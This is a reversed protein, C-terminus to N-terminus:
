WTVEEPYDINITLDLVSCNYEKSAKILDSKLRKYEEGNEFLRKAMISINDRRKEPKM